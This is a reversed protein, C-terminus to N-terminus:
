HWNITSFSVKGNLRHKESMLRLDSYKLTGEKSTYHDTVSGFQLCQGKISTEFLNIGERLLITVSIPYNMLNENLVSGLPFSFYSMFDSKDM